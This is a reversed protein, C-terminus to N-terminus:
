SAIGPWRTEPRVLTTVNELAKRGLTKAKEALRRRQDDTYRHANHVLRDLIPWRPVNVM